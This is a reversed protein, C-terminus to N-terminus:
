AIYICRQRFYGGVTEVLVVDHGAAECLMVSEQTARAVGGLHGASPSPRIFAQSDVSLRPMRTKDALLSGRTSSSSPDVALVALRHKPLKPPPSSPLQQEAQGADEAIVNM